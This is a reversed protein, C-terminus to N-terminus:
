RAVQDVSVVNVCRLSEECRAVLFGFQKPALGSSTTRLRRSGPVLVSASALVFCAPVLSARPPEFPKESKGDLSRPVGCRTSM